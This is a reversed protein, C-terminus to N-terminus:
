KVNLSMNRWTVVPNLSCIDVQVGRFGEEAGRGSCGLTCLYVHCYSLVCEGHRLRVVHVASIWSFHSCEMLLKGINWNVEGDGM